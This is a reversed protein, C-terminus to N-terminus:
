TEHVLDSSLENQTATVFLNRGLTSAPSAAQTWFEKENLSKSKRARNKCYVIQPLALLREWFHKPSSLPQAHLKINSFGSLSLYLYLQPFSWPMIHMHSGKEIKGVLCPFSPFFGRHGYQLKASPQWTNPTTILLTGNPNLHEASTRFFLEPNGFHEIGECCVILDYKPLEKPIGNSLDAAIHTRYNKNSQVYLDIGDVISNPASDFLWGDGSPCDLITKHTNRKLWIKVSDKTSSQM